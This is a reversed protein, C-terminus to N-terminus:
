KKDEKKNEKINKDEYIITINKKTGIDKIENNGKIENNDKIENSIKLGKNKLEPNKIDVERQKPLIIKEQKKNSTRKVYKDLTPVDMKVSRMMLKNAEDLNSSADIINECEGDIKLDKYEEQLLDNNDVIKFYNIASKVFTNYAYKVDPSIEDTLNNSIMEKFLNFIRKRYFQLDERNIQKERQEMIHKGMIERNLLCDLTIQNVYSNNM